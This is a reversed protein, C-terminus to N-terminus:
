VLEEHRREARLQPPTDSNNQLEINKKCCDNINRVPFGLGLKQRPKNM